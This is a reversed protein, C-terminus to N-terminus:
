RHLTFHGKYKHDHGEWDLLYFRYVYTGQQVKEGKFTGDWHFEDDVSYFLQEGWRDFIWMEYSTYAKGSGFFLDNIGNDDPTFSNPIYFTFVPNVKVQYEITDLCGYQTEVILKIPYTGVDSFSHTPHQIASYSGDGFNWDWATVNPSSLDTFEFSPNIVDKIDDDVSFLADPKPYVTVFDPRYIESVCGNLSTVSLGIDYIAIDLPDIEPNYTYYPNQTNSSMSDSGLYWNWTGLSYPATISSQDLFQIELPACGETPTTSFDVNPMPYIEVPHVVDDMCGKNTEVSLQVNYINASQYLHSPSIDNSTSADDFDWLWSTIVDDTVPELLTEDTFNVIEEFCAALNDPFGAEPLAHVIADGAIFVSKCGLDNTILLEASYAGAAGFDISPSQAASAQNDSFTWLWSTIPYTGNDISLDTFQIENPFCVSDYTFEAIPVPYVEINDTLTDSCGFGTSVILSVTYFSDTPYTQYIPQQINSTTGNGFDWQWGTITGTTVTSLENFVISDDECINNFSFDATPVDYIDTSVQIVDSCGDTTTVSLTLDFEGASGYLYSNPVSNQMPSLDGMDLSYTNIVGPAIVSSNDVLNVLDGICAQTITFDADPNPNSTLQFTTDSICGEDSTAV